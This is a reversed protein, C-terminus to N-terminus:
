WRRPRFWAVSGLAIGLLATELGLAGCLPPLVAANTNEALPIIETSQRPAPPLKSRAADSAVALSGAFSEGVGIGAVKSVLNALESLPAGLVVGAGRGGPRNNVVAEITAKLTFTEGVTAEYEYPIAVDPILIAQVANLERVAGNLDLRVLRGEGLAGSTELASGDDPTGALSADTTLVTVTGTSERNQTVEIRVTANMGSLDSVGASSWLVAIGDVFFRSRVRILTGDALGTDAATFVIERTETATSGSEYSLQADSAYAVASIGFEEPSPQESLRPDSFTTIARGAAVVTGSPDSRTFGADTTMPLNSTSIGPFSDFAYDSDSPSGDRLEQVRGEVTASFQRIEARAAACCGLAGVLVGITRTISRSLM